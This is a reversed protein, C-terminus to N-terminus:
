PLTITWAAAPAWASAGWANRAQLQVQAQRGRRNDIFGSASTANAAYTPTGLTWTGWNTCPIANTNCTRFRSQYDSNSNSGEETWTASVTNRTASTVTATVTLFTPVFTGFPSTSNGLRVTLSSSPASSGGAGAAVVTYDYNTNAAPRLGSASTQNGDVFSVVGGTATGQTASRTVSGVVVAAAASGSIKRFVDFRTESTSADTWNLTVQPRAISGGALNTVGLSVLGTPASPAAGGANTLTTTAAASGNAGIATVRYTVSAGAALAVPDAYRTSNALLSVPAEFIGTGVRREVTYRYETSATDTWSLSALNGAVTGVLGTPATPAAENAHFIVPRMFDNEEHGLIHCHWVYEWGYDQVGNAMPAPNGTNPDIQTFGSMAGEPQTPDMLRVSNPLGFGGLKPKKARVAVIVDELPSMKVTEKWGLENPEPPTIFNDWGVRNILQVNLLHFHVPHTDVGNHTIKWIQTEGNAFEETPADVYGLPITTQTLASTYPIEVGLTANLRGYTPEFLEQIAKTKVLISGTAVGGNATDVQALATIRVPNLIANPTPASVSVVPASTYGTGANTLTIDFVKGTAGATPATGGAAPATFTITLGPALNAPDSAATSLDTYGGGGASGANLPDPIDLVIDAVGAVSTLKATTNTGAVTVSPAVTYGSGPNTITVGTVAGAANVIAVGAAKVPNKGLPTPFVLAPPASPSYGSGGATVGVSKVGLSATATAGSGAGNSTLTVAPAVKYGTGGNIVYLKDIKLSGKATAGTGGGGSLTVLPPTTYGSGPNTVQISNFAAGVTGPVFNFAPEKLSGTYIHAFARTDDWTTGLAANYASQAVVPTEQATKYAAKIATDFAAFNTPNGEIPAIGPATVSTGVRIQMMTRTNPGFGPQTDEAGGTASNDGYGTFYENRPDGAPIPAGADNYVILTKGAYQSFDIVLDAREGNGLTLGSTGYDLNLVAARGKDLLYSIPTADKVAVGPLFGGESAVQFMTPGQTAPDPVGGNHGYVDTTWIDPTCGNVSKTVGPACLNTWAQVPIMKVETNTRGDASTVTGDAVFMNFAFLRDNSANLVRFRYPKPEVTLTPYAVGNIVPTDMWAEPVTTVDGYEGSPLNYLSPFSPWFWPGWHWRGVANFNTAQNPDQVTEYVHPYWLDGPAGWASTSWRADQLLIDDPVFTKDQLILPITADPGPLKGSSILAQEVPDTLLYASAMGAHVNLRTIGVSHDHYWEMRASMGNPFYYTMAGPGPDNMDPVNLAGVGRLYGPLVAPDITIDAALSKPHAPNSEDAPTIWQHPTGDSIWPNDGGHLHILARNQPYQHTGDPGFGAGAISPDVPLFLDGNRQTVVTTPTNVITGTKPDYVPKTGVTTQARGIPLLNLFKIRTPVDKTAQVIPGLYHPADYARAQVRAGGTLKGNADTANITIPAADAPVVDTAAFAVKGSSNPYYLALAKSGAMPARSNSAEADIQVYGRVTSPKRLDSHFRESYEVVAIELYDDATLAGQPNVWKRPVALPIIKQTVGDAMTKVIGPVPLPDVFKRLAKGTGNYGTPFLKGIAAAYAAQNAPDYGGPAGLPPAPNGLGDLWLRAGAPSSAFYTPIIFPVGNLDFADGFGAGAQSAPALALLTTLALVARVVPKAEFKLRKSM